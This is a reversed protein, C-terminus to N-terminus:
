PAAEPHAELVAAFRSALEASQRALSAWTSVYILTPMIAAYLLVAGLGNPPRGKQITAVTFIVLPGGVLVLAM